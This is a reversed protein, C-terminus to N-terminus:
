IKVSDVEKKSVGNSVAPAATAGMARLRDTLSASFVKRKEANYKGEMVKGGGARNIFRLRDRVKGGKGDREDTEHVIAGAFPKDPKQFPFQSLDDGVFGANLLQELTSELASDTFYGYWTRVQGKHECESVIRAQISVQKTGKSSEGLVCSMPGEDTDQPVIEWMYSGKPIM